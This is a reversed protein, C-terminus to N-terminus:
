AKRRKKPATRGPQKPRSRRPGDDAEVLEIAIRSSTRVRYLQGQAAQVRIRAPRFTKETCVIEIPEDPRHPQKGIKPYSVVIEARAKGAVNRVSYTGPRILTV